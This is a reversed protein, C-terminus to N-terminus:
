ARRPERPKARRQRARFEHIMRVVDEESSIGLERAKAEGYAFIERWAQRRRQYCRFAERLLESMTRNEERALREAQELMKPPFTVSVVRSNRM